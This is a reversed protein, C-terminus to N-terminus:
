DLHPKKRNLKTKGRQKKSDMRREKAAKTPRTAIRAKPRVAAERLMDELRAVADKRNKLQSRYQDAQIVLQGDKNIRNRQQLRLRRTIDSPLSLANIDVRLEVATATKNVHQGGPGSALVFRFELAELAYEPTSM